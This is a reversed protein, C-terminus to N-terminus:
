TLDGDNQKEEQMKRKIHESLTMSEYPYGKQVIRIEDIQVLYAWEGKDVAPLYSESEKLDPENRKIISKLLNHAAYKASEVVSDMLRQCDPCIWKVTTQDKADQDGFLLPKDLPIRYETPPQSTVRLCVDCWTAIGM